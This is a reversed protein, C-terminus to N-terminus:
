FVVDSKFCQVARNLSKVVLQCVYVNLNHRVAERIRAKCQASTTFNMKLSYIIVKFYISIESAIYYVLKKFPCWSIYSVEKKIM